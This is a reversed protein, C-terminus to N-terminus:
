LHLSRSTGALIQWATGTLSVAAAALGPSDSNVTINCRQAPIGRPPSRPQGAPSHPSVGATGRSVPTWAAAAEAADVTGTKELM